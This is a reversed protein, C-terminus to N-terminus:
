EPKPTKAKVPANVPATLDPRSAAFDRREQASLRRGKFDHKVPFISKLVETMERAVDANEDKRRLTDQGIKPMDDNGDPKPKRSRYPNKAFPGQPDHAPRTKAEAIEAAAAKSARRVRRMHADRTAKTRMHADHQDPDIKKTMMIEM